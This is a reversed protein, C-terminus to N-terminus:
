QEVGERAIKRFETCAPCEVFPRNGPVLNFGTGKCRECAFAKAAALVLPIAPGYNIREDDECLEIAESLTLKPMIPSRPKCKTNSLRSEVFLYCWVVVFLVFFGLMVYVFCKLLCGIVDIQYVM